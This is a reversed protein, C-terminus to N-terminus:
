FPFSTHSVEVFDENHAVQCSVRFQPKRWASRWYAVEADGYVLYVASWISFPFFVGAEYVDLRESSIGLQAGLAKLFTPLKEDFASESVSGPFRRFTLFSAFQAYDCFVDL